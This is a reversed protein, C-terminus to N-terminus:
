EQKSNYRNACAVVGEELWSPIAQSAARAADMLEDELEGSLPELVYDEPVQEEDRGIGVKLRSFRETNLERIISGLGRHGGSSGRARFRLRGFPMDLDDYVVLVVGRLDVSSDEDALEDEGRAGHLSSPPTEGVSLFALLDRVSNGSLNMYTLPKVLM